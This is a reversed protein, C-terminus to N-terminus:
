EVGMEERLAAAAQEEVNAVAEAALRKAATGMVAYASRYIVALVVMAKEEETITSADWDEEKGLVSHLNGEEHKTFLDRIKQMQEASIERDMLAEAMTQVREVATM